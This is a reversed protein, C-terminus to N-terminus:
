IFNVMKGPNVIDEVMANQDSFVCHDCNNTPFSRIDHRYMAALEEMRVWRYKKHFSREANENLVVSSCPYVYGDHLIFPKFYGWFCKNPKNFTKPQYFYPPGWLSATEGLVRNNEEQVEDTAQCDPVIRVYAPKYKKTYEKIRSLVNLDTMSNMVYSFGLTGSMHPIEIDDVYDLCNMSIRVWHFQRRQSLEINELAVGNTIFGVQLGITSCFTILKNIEPYLTPDGGGTIEVTKTGYELLQRVVKMLLVLDLDEHKERNVNSCFVCNLNCKSTPAIQLSIPTARLSNNLKRVANPHHLLKSGTSTFNNLKNM